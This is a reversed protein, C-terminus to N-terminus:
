HFMQAGVLWTGHTTDSLPALCVSNLSEYRQECAVNPRVTSSFANEDVYFTWRQGTQTSPPTSRVWASGLTQAHKRHKRQRCRRVVVRDARQGGFQWARQNFRNTHQPTQSLMCVPPKTTCHLVHEIKLIKFPSKKRQNGCHCLESIPHQNCSTLVISDGTDFDKSQQHRPHGVGSQGM